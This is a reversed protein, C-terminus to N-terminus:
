CVLYSTAMSATYGFCLHHNGQDWRIDIECFTCLFIILKYGMRMLVYLSIVRIFMYDCYCNAIDIFYEFPNRKNSNLILNSLNMTLYNSGFDDSLTHRPTFTDM